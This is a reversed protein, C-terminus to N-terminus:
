RRRRVPPWMELGLEAYAQTTADPSPDGLIGRLVWGTCLAIISVAQALSHLPAVAIAFGLGRTEAYFRMLPVNTLLLGGFVLGTKLLVSPAPFFAAALTLTALLALVPSLSRTLTFVVESPVASSMRVYGLSRALIRSRRWVERCVKSMNWRTLYSVKLDRSLLLGNGTHRLRVGLEASELCGTAFRWEDFMGSSLFAERRIMGCGSAFQACHAGHREEGFRLLLNWYLSVFNTSGPTEDHSASIANLDPRDALTAVMTSLTDKRVVVDSDIFAILQGRALEAGRNRAYAPGCREGTLKVVTDAYRSAIFVSADSSADDVVILEYADRPLSSTRIARLASALTSVSDCATVIVSLTVSQAM